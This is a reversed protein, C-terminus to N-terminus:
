TQAPHIAKAPQFCGQMGRSNPGTLTARVCRATRLWSVCPPSALARRSARGGRLRRTAGGVRIGAPGSCRQLSRVQGRADQLAFKGARLEGYVELLTPAQKPFAGLDPLMSAFILGCLLAALRRLAAFTARENEGIAIQEQRALLAHAVADDLRIFMALTALDYFPHAPRGGGLRGALRAHRGM